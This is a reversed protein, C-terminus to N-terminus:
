RYLSFILEWIVKWIAEVELPLVSNVARRRFTSKKSITPFKGSRHGKDKDLEGWSNIKNMANDSKRQVRQLVYKGLESM